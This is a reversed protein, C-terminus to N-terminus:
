SISPRRLHWRTAQEYAQAAQLVGVEDFMPAVLQLGVPLKDSTFGCPISISPLGTFNFVRSYRTLGALVDFEQGGVVVQSAGHPPAAVACMPTALLDIQGFIGQLDRKLRARARQARAYEAGTVAMTGELRARVLPDYDEARTRLWEEHVAAADGRWMTLGASMGETLGPLHVDVVKAGLGSLVELAVEFAARVETSIGNLAFEWDVGVKRGEIGADLEATYDPVPRDISAPDAADWGAMAQLMIAADFVTRTIPGPHDQEWSLPMIGQCSIRGYSPKLGVVGCLAAPIRISGGTDSGTAVTCLGAAVAAGSGGSSGGPTRSLDWPNNTDGYHANTTTVGCAFENLNTKGVIVAGAARLRRISAADQEPVWDALIKSGSTTRVGATDYLDKVAMPIGHLPGRDQGAALEKDRRRAVDLAEEATVTIFANLRPELSEVRELTAQAIELASLERKRLLTGLELASLHCPDETM